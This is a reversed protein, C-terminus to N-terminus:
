HASKKILPQHAMSFPHCFTKSMKDLSILPYNNGLNLSIAPHNQKTDFIYIRKSKQQVTRLVYQLLLTLWSPTQLYPCFISFVAKHGGEAQSKLHYIPAAGKHSPAFFNEPLRYDKQLDDGRLHLFFGSQFNAFFCRRRRHRICLNTRGYIYM